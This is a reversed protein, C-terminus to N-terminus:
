ELPTLGERIAYKTLEAVSHIDLKDMIQKRHSEITKISVDLQAAIEKTSRGEALLQLVERERPSLVTYASAPRERSLEIYDEIVVDAITRSLYRQNRAVTRIAALLEDIASDKLVYGMAGARLSEAVFRQDAHMSLIIIKIGANEALIKRTAEIGNLEPMSIDMLLIDPRIERTKVVADPGDVADGVVEMDSQQILLTRLGDRFLRHDDALLIKLKM